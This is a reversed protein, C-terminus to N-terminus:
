DIFLFQKTNLIVHALASWAAPISGGEAQVFAVCRDVEAAAPERGWADHLMGAAVRAISETSGDSSAGAREGWRMALEHVLPANMMALAQAPVNSEHRRGVTTTPVPLDFTTLFSDAFNRRVELYVSRRGHGDLPGSQGPRGRGTMFETLHTPVGPGGMSRDLGGALALMADRVSEADLRRVYARHLLANTPDIAEAREGAVGSQSFTASLAIQRVLRKLDWDRMFDAALWDLLEPHSPAAGLAGFDDPTPVLGRGMVHQWIRNVMVRAVLPHSGDVLTRALQLRGSGVAGPAPMGRALAGMAGRAVPDGLRKVSGRVHVSDDWAGAEALVLAEIADPLPRADITALAAALSPDAPVSAPMAALQAAPVFALWAVDIAGSGDDVYEVHARRGQFRRLDHVVAAWAGGTDPAQTMGEFLLANHDDLFYGDIVCRIRVGAGRVAHALYPGDITFSPSRLWGKLAHGGADSTAIARELSVVAKGRQGISPRETDLCAFAAGGVTWGEPVPQEFTALVRLADAPADPASPATPAAPKAPSAARGDADSGQDPAVATQAECARRAAVRAAREAQMRGDDLWAPTRASSKLSGSLAYYDRQAIPDFKHDHCRACAVTSGLFTRTMVDVQNSIREAEDAAVDVPAHTGQALLWFGTGVASVDANWAPDLRPEDLADGALHELVFRDYPVNANFARIVYDRYRWAHPIPYDFEHGYTEAYRVLDLWHRGFREGFHPSALLLDVAAEPSSAQDLGDIAMPPLGTLAFSWRRVLTDHNARPAPALGARELGSLVFRDVDSRPWSAARVSPVSPQKVPEWSWHAAYGAGQEIWAKITDREAATLPTGKPPMREDPDDSLLRRWVESAAPDGAVIAAHGDRMAKADHPDDLRLGAKRSEADPGHCNFCRAALIPRVDRNFDLARDGAGGAATVLLTLATPLM